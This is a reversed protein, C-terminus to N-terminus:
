PTIGSLTIATKIGNVGTGKSEGPHHRQIEEADWGHAILDLAITRVMIRTGEVIPEGESNHKIHAYTVTAVVIGGHLRSSQSGSRTKM